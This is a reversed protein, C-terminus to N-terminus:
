QDVRIMRGSADMRRKGFDTAIERLKPSDFVPGDRCVRYPGIACSGCLGVACKCFRELSAQTPIDLRNAESWIKVVM